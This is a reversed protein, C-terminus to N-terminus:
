ECKIRESWAAVTAKKDDDKVKFKQNERTKKTLPCEKLMHSAMGCAYCSNANTNDKNTFKGKSFNGNRNVTSGIPSLGRQNFKKKLGM